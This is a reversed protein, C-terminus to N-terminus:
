DGLKEEEIWKGYICSYFLSRMLPSIGGDGGSGPMMALTAGANGLVAIGEHEACVTGSNLRYLRYV